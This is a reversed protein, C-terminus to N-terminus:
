NDYENIAKKAEKLMAEMQRRHESNSRDTTVSKVNKRGAPGQLEMLDAPDEIQL